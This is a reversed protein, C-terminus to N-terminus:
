PRQQIDLSAIMTLQPFEAGASDYLVEIAMPQESLPVAAYGGVGPMWHEGIVKLPYKVRVVDGVTVSILATDMFSVFVDRGHKIFWNSCTAVDLQVLAALIGAETPVGPIRMGTYTNGDAWKGTRLWPKYSGERLSHALLGSDLQHDYIM